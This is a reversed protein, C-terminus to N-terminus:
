AARAPVRLEFAKSPKQPPVFVGNISATMRTVLGMGLGGVDPETQSFPLGDDDVIVTIDRAVNKGISVQIQGSRDDEFAHKMANVALENVVLALTTIQNPSLGDVEHGGRLSVRISRPEGQAQLADCVQRLASELSPQEGARSAGRARALISVREMADSLARRVDPNTARRSQLALLGVVLQLDNNFRHVTERLLLDYDAASRIDSPTEVLDNAVGTGAQGATAKTPPDLHLYRPDFGSVHRLRAVSPLTMIREASEILGEARLQQMTRNVHVPTLGLADAVQEQTLPFAFCSQDGDEAELRVSLECLLHALRERSSRRGLSLARQSLTANEVLALWTFTRAIGPHKAALALARERPLTVITAETLTRVGFGPREFMLSDLNCVDGPVLVAPLQCGGDRTTTFRCAWGAVIIFLSDAREEERVLDTGAGVMRTPLTLDELAQREDRSLFRSAM